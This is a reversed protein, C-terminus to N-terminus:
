LPRSAFYAGLDLGLDELLSVTPSIGTEIAGFASDAAIADLANRAAQRASAGAGHCAENYLSRATARADKPQAEGRQRQAWADIERVKADYEAQAMSGKMFRRDLSNMMSEVRLEIQEETM